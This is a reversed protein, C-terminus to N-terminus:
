VQVIIIWCSEMIMGVILRKQVMFIHNKDLGLRDTMVADGTYIYDGKADKYPTRVGAFIVEHAYGHGECEDHFTAQVVGANHEDKYKPDSWRLFWLLFADQSLESTAYDLLNPRM